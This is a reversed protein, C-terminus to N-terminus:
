GTVWVNTIDPGGINPQYAIWTAGLNHVRASSYYPAQQDTLPVIWANKMALADAQGWLSGATTLSTAGEAQKILSNMQANNVCGYNITNVKCDTQFFPPIITRGNVGFWDPIWGPFGVDWVNPKNNAPGNGLDTFYSSGPEPKGKLNIGCPALSAQVAEFLKTNVSDNIYLAIVSVGHPYGAAALTSKCKTTDGAGNNDPYINTNSFGSNGPPIVTSLIKAVSAGGYVRQVAIKSVGYEFAQRVGLKGMAGGADPSRLNFVIYPFTDSWPNVFFRPNHTSMMNPIATPEFPTDQVLDFTGANQDALQTSASAVGITLTITKVYQHRIPDSSQKWNPNVSMTLSKGPVNSTIEYPGDSVIHQNLQASNPLYADYSAPRASTFPMGMMYVFDAAPALLTIQLTSSDPTALGSITHSNQFAAVNAATVPHKKTNAFFATEANCYPTLGSITSEFYGINGVFGGPAPNCFAKFERVFDASTVAAGTQWAVGPRIHFTYTKGGNTIGGNATTPVATAVDPALTTSKTWGADGIAKPVGYPYALMQRAYARELIYDATYYAPVTDLHDFGSAAVLRLTGTPKSPPAAGASTTTSSSSCAALAAASLFAASLAAVQKISRM